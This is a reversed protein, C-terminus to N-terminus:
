HVMTQDLSLKKDLRRDRIWQQMKPATTSEYDSKIREKIFVGVLHDLVQMFARMMFLRQTLPDVEGTSDPDTQPKKGAVDTVLDNKHDNTDTKRPLTLSRPNLDTGSLIASFEGYPLIKCGLKLEKVVKGSLLAVSAEPSHSPDGGKFVNQHSKATGRHHSELILRDDIWIYFTQKNSDQAEAQLAGPHNEAFFWLWTLFEKNLFQKSQNLFELSEAEASKPQTKDTETQSM